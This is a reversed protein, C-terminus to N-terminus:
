NSLDYGGDGDDYEGDDSAAPTRRSVVFFPENVNGFYSHQTWMVTGPM